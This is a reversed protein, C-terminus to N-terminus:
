RAAGVTVSRDERIVLRSGAAVGPVRFRTDPTLALDACLKREFILQNQATSKHEDMLPPIYMKAVDGIACLYNLVAYYARQKEGYVRRYDPGLVEAMHQPDRWDHALFEYSGMYADLAEPPMRYLHYMAHAQTPIRSAVHAITSFM